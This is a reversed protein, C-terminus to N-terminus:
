PENVVGTFLPLGDPSSIVFAFPRNLTFEVPPPDQPIGEGPLGIVTYAAAKVGDEDICVRVAHDIQNVYLPLDTCIPSFDSVTWDFVDNLGLMKMGEVLDTKSSIDFKPLALIIEASQETWGEHTLWNESALVNQVTYGEDPLILWMKGCATADFDLSIAGYHDGRYYTGEFSSHMFTTEYDGIPSHFIEQTNNQERFQNSWKGTFYLTSALALVTDLSLETNKTQETLLGGTQENLWARLQENMEETGLDGHFVSAFHDNALRQVTDERFSYGDDLWLSNALLSHNKGDAFYTATWIRHAQNRLADISDAGLLDLIEQRSNGDSIEALMALAMYVNLPSYVQNGEGSLFLRSSELFFSDLSQTLEPTLANAKRWQWQFDYWADAGERDNPDSPCPVMAPYAPTAVRNNLPVVIPGVHQSPTLLKGLSFGSLDVEQPDTTNVWMCITWDGSRFEAFLRKGSGWTGEVLPSSLSGLTVASITEGDMNWSPNETVLFCYRIGNVDYFVELSANGYFRAPYYYFSFFTSDSDDRRPLPVRELLDSLIQVDAQTPYSIDFHGINEADMYADLAAQSEKAANLLGQLQVLSDFRLTAPSSPAIGPKSGNTPKTPKSGLQAPGTTIGPTGYGGLLAGIGIALVLVAAVAAFWYPKRSRKKPAAAEAIYRDDIENLADSIPKSM